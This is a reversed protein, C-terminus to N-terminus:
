DEYEDTKSGNRIAEVEAEAKFILHNIYWNMANKLADRPTVGVALYAKYLEQCTLDVPILRWVKAADDMGAADLVIFTDSDVDYVQRHFVDAQTPVISLKPAIDTKNAKSQTM